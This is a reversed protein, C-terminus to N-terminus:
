ARVELDPFCNMLNVVLETEKTNRESLIAIREIRKPNRYDVHKEFLLGDDNNDADLLLADDTTESEKVLSITEVEDDNMGEEQNGSTNILKYFNFIISSKHNHDYVNILILALILIIISAFKIFRNRRNQKNRPNEKKQKYLSKFYELEEAATGTLDKMLDDDETDVSIGTPDIPM